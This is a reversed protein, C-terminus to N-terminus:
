CGAPEARTINRTPRFTVDEYGRMAGAAAVAGIVGKSWAPIAAADAFREAEDANEELGLVRCIIAAAEQRTIKATPRMTGDPYGGIYGAAVAARVVAAYWANAPVDPFEVAADGHFNFVRNVFAM